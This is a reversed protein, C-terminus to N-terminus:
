LPQHSPGAGRVLTQGIVPDSASDTGQGHARDRLKLRQLVPKFQAHECTRLWEFVVMELSVIDAGAGRLRRMALAHDEPSRSGCAPAVVHVRHGARLLGLATQQLCVHAECGALVVDPLADSRPPRLLDLLGDRCADFHMKPLLTGFRQRLGQVTGGLGAANQETGIIRRGLLAAVDALCEAEILLRAAHHIAPMLRLQYDVLVLTSRQADITDM